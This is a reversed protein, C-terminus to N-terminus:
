TLESFNIIEDENEITGLFMARCCYRKLGLEDLAQKPSETKIKEKYEEWLHAIPKGCSYCRIPIM